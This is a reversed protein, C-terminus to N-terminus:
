ISSRFDFIIKKFRALWQAMEFMFKEDFIRIFNEGSVNMSTKM